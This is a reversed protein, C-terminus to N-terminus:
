EVTVSKALNRPKDVDLGKCVSLHYGLLQLPVAAASAALCTDTKPLKLVVDACASLREDAVMTLAVIYAGRSKLEKLNALTKEFLSPQTLVGIALTGREVLSITGHKLEGAAYAEAHIYSIEKIKLAGEMCIAYDLGRGILFTDHERYFRQALRRLDDETQLVAAITEPLNMLGLLMEEYEHESIAARIRGFVAAILSMLALQASYAKTTAVAIEPGAETYLTRDAERAISSGKVNVIALTRIGKRKAERLAALSDATEGSQSVVIVLDNKDFLPTRYRFESAYETRVFLRAKSELVYQAAAGVHYASGCAVIWVTQLDRIEEESFGLAAIDAKTGNMYPRLTARVAKPQEHIEKRMFHAFGEKEADEVCLSLTTPAKAIESGEGDYFIVDGEHLRAIEKQGMYYVRKTEHLFASVDSSLFSEGERIGIALPSEKRLAFITEPHDDFILAMAYSGEFTRMALALAKVADRTERYCLDIWDLAIETDTESQFSYGKLLLETKLTEENEIIGNHVGVVCGGRHPHANRESPEGHTAWRTHGIGTHTQDKMRTETKEALACLKGKAKVIETKGKEGCFAIGSSDYGRYELKELGKMLIPIAPRTGTYGIIGCM